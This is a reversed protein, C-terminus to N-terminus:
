LKLPPERAGFDMPDAGGHPQHVSPLTHLKQTKTGPFPLAKLSVPLYCM